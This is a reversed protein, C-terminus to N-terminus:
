FTIQFKGCTLIVNRRDENSEGGVYLLILIASSCIFLYLFVTREMLRESKLLCPCM